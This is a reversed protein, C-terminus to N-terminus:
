LHMALPGPRQAHQAAADAICSRWGKPATMPLAAASLVGLRIQQFQSVPDYAGIDGHDDGAEEPSQLRTDEFPHSGQAHLARVRESWMEADPHRTSSCWMGGRIETICLQTQRQTVQRTDRTAYLAPEEGAAGEHQDDHHTRQPTLTVMRMGHRALQNRKSEM